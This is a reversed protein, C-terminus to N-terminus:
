YKRRSNHHTTKKSKSYRSSNSQYTIRLSEFRDERKKKGIVIALIVLVVLVLGIVYVYWINVLTITIRIDGTINERSVDTKVIEFISKELEEPLEAKKGYECTVSTRTGDPLIYTVKYKELEWRPYLNVAGVTGSSIKTVQEEYAKDLYWGKFIHGTKSPANLTIDGDEVNYSTPNRTNDADTNYNIAYEIPSWRAYLTISGISGAPTYMYLDDDKLTPADCWSVFYYHDREPINRYTFNIDNEMEVTYYMTQIKEKVPYATSDNHVFSITFTIPTYKATFTTDAHIAYTEPNVKLSGVYWEMTYASRITSLKSADASSLSPTAYEGDAVSYTYDPITRVTVSLNETLTEMSYDFVVTHDGTAASVSTSPKYLGVCLAGMLLLILSLLYKKWNKM